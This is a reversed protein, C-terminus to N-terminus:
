NYVRNEQENVLIFERGQCFEELTQCNTYSCSSRLGGLIDHLTHEVKGRFPLKVSKGESTRYNSVYGYHKEMAESSSMGYFRKYLRGNEEILEGGSEEHGALMGGLMVFDARAGFAKSIDGAISCGGDSMLYSNNEFNNDKIDMIMSFQPYGVGTKVRTTCTSGGGIGAKIVDVKLNKLLQYGKEDAINGAMLIKNPYKERVQKIVQHFSDMYGNAVDLCIWKLNEDLKMILDLKELDEKTMGSSVCMYEKTENSISKLFDEWQKISYFKHLCTLMKNKSLEKDM